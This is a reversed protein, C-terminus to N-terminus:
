DKQPRQKSARHRHSLETLAMTLDEFSQRNIKPTRKMKQLHRESCVNLLRQDRRDPLEALPTRPSSMIHSSSLQSLASCYVLREFRTNRPKASSPCPSFVSAITVDNMLSWIFRGDGSRHWSMARQWRRPTWRDSVCCRGIM